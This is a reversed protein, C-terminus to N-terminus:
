YLHRWGYTAARKKRRESRECHEGGSASRRVARTPALVAQPLRAAIGKRACLPLPPTDEITMRSRDPTRATNAAPGNRTRAGGGVGRICVRL